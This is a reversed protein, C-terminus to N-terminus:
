LRGGVLEDALEGIETHHGARDVRVTMHPVCGLILLLAHGLDNDGDALIVLVNLSKRGAINACHGLQAHGVGSIRQGGALGPQRQRTDLEGFWNEAHGNLRLRLGVLVLHARREPPQKLLVRAERHCAFTVGM